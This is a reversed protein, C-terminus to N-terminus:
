SSNLMGVGMGSISIKEDRPQVYNTLFGFKALTIKKNVNFIHFKMDQPVNQYWDRVTSPPPCPVVMFRRSQVGIRYLKHELKSAPDTGFNGKLSVRTWTTGDPMTITTESSTSERCCCNHKSVCVSQYWLIIDDNHIEFALINLKNYCLSSFFWSM